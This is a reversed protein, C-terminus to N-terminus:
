RHSCCATPHEDVLRARLPTFIMLRWLLVETRPADSAFSRSARAGAFSQMAESHSSVRCPKEIQLRSAWYWFSLLTKPKRGFHSAITIFFAAFEFVVRSSALLWASAYAYGPLSLPDYGEWIELVYLWKTGQPPIGFLITNNAQFSVNQGWGIKQRGWLKPSAVSSLPSTWERRRSKSSVFVCHVNILLDSNGRLSCHVDACRLFVPPQWRLIGPLQLWAVSDLTCRSCFFLVVVSCMFYSESVFLLKVCSALQNFVFCCFLPTAILFDRICRLEKTLHRPFIPLLRLLYCWSGDERDANVRSQVPAHRRCHFATTSAFLAKRDPWTSPPRHLHLTPLCHDIHDSRNRPCPKLM